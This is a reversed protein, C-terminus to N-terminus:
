SVGERRWKRDRLDRVLRAHLDASIPYGWIAALSVLITAAPALFLISAFYEASAGTMPTQATHGVSSLVMGLIWASVGVAVKQSLTLASFLAAEVRVGSRWEGFEVTDPLMAFSTLQIAAFGFAAASMAVLLVPLPAQAFLALVILSVASWVAGIIWTMRKGIRRAILTWIPVFVAVGAILVALSPGLAAPEARVYSFYYPLGSVVLAQGTAYCVMCAAVRLFATNQIIVRPLEQVRYHEGSELSSHHESTAFFSIVVIVAACCGIVIAAHFYGRRLDGAGLAEVLPPMALAVALAALTSCTIRFGSLTGRERADLTMASSLAGYPIAVVTFALRFTLQIGLLAAILAAGKLPPVWFVAAFSVALLPAGLLLYPRYRGWRTRTRDAVVGMAIDTVGDWVLGVFILGGALAPDLGVIETLFFLLFFGVSQWTLVLGFDGVGYGLMRWVPLSRPSATM